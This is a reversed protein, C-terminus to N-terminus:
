LDNKDGFIEVFKEPQYLLEINEEIKEHPWDWWKIKLMKEVTKKDFRYRILKAPVGGVIAYPEVDKTVVAGAAVIAGDCIHVGPMICVNAGIWVDNGIVVPENKRLASNEFPHNNFYRGYKKIFEQRQDYKEYPFFAYYDLIPSTTVYDIPHNNWIRATSNISSYRGISEAMPFSELLGEYGYTYRGIKCGKYNIDDENLPYPNQFPCLFDSSTYNFEHLKRIIDFDVDQISILVYPKAKLAEDCCLIIKNNREGGKRDIYGDIVVNTSQLVEEVILSNAGIGWVFMPRDAKDRLIKPLQSELIQKKQIQNEKAM